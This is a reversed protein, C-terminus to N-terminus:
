NFLYNKINSNITKGQVNTEYENKCNSCIISLVLTEELLYSLKPRELKRYKTCIVWCLKRM